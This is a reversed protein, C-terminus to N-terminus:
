KILRGLLKEQVLKVKFTGTNLRQNYYQGDLEKTDPYYKLMGTGIHNNLQSQLISTENTFIYYIKFLGNNEKILEESVSVSSSSNLNTFEDGFYAYIHIYSATQKIEVVCKKRINVGSSTQYSSVLVGEYRGNLNPVNILWKFIKYKWGYNNILAIIVGIMGLTSLPGVIDVIKSTEKGIGQLLASLPALLIYLFILFGILSTTNFYKFNM